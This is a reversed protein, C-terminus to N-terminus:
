RRFVALKEGVPEHQTETEQLESLANLMTGLAGSSPVCRLRGDSLWRELFSLFSKSTSRKGVCFSPLELMVLDTHM